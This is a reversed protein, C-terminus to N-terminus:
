LLSNDSLSRISFSMQTTKSSSYFIASHFKPPLLIEHVSGPMLLPLEFHTSHVFSLLFWKTHNSNMIYSLSRPVFSFSIKIHLVKFTRTLLESKKKKKKKLLQGDKFFKLLCKKDYNYKTLILRTTIHIITQFPPSVLLLSVILINKITELLFYHPEQNLYPDVYRHFGKLM